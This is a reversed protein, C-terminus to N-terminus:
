WSISLPSRSRLSVFRLDLESQDRLDRLRVELEWDWCCRVEVEWDWWGPGAGGSVEGEVEDRARGGGRVNLSWSRPSLASV